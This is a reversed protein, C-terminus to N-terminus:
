LEVLAKAAALVAADLETADQAHLHGELASDGDSSSFRRLKKVALIVGRMCEMAKIAVSMHQKLEVAEMAVKALSQELHKIYAAEVMKQAAKPVYVVEGTFPGTPWYFEIREGGNRRQWSQVFPRLEALTSDEFLPNVDILDSSVRDDQWTVLETYGNEKVARDLAADVQEQTIPQM